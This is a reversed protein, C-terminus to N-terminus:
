EHRMFTKIFSNAIPTKLWTEKKLNLVLAIVLYLLAISAFGLYNKGFMDGAFLALAISFFLFVLLYFVFVVSNAGASASAESVKEIVELRLIKKQLELYEYVNDIVENLSKQQEM